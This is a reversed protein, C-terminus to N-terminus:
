FLLGNLINLISWKLLLTKIVYLEATKSFMQSSIGNKYTARVIDKSDQKRLFYGAFHRLDLIGAEPLVADSLEVVLDVFEEAFFHASYSPQTSPL